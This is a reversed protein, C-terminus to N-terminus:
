GSSTATDPIEYHDGKVFAPVVDFSMVTTETRSPWQSSTSRASRRQRSVKDSRLEKPASKVAEVVSVATSKSLAISRDWSM